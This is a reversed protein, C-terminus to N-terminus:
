SLYEGDKALLFHKKVNKQALLQVVLIYNVRYKTKGLDTHTCQDLLGQFGGTSSVPVNVDPVGTLM